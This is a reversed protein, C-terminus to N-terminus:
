IHCFLMLNDFINELEKDQFVSKTGKLRISVRYCCSINCTTADNSWTFLLTNFAQCDPSIMHCIKTKKFSPFLIFIFSFHCSIDTYNIIEWTTEGLHMLAKTEVNM